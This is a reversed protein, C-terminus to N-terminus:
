MRSMNSIVVGCAFLHMGLFCRNWFTLACCKFKLIPKSFQGSEAMKNLRTKTSYDKTVCLKLIMTMMMMIVM